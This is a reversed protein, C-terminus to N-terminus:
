LNVFELLGPGHVLSLRFKPTWTLRCCNLSSCIMELRNELTVSLALSPLSQYHLCLYPFPRSRCASFSGSIRTCPEKSPFLLNRHDCLECSPESAHTISIRPSRNQLSLEVHETLPRDGARPSAAMKVRHHHCADRFITRTALGTPAQKSECFPVSREYM